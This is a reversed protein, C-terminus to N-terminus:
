LIGFNKDLGIAKIAILIDMCLKKMSTAKNLFYDAGLVATEERDKIHTSTTYIVVPIDKLLTDKKLEALCTKGDIRPMNLDLFIVDPLTEIKNRLLSLAEEGNYAIHCIANANIEHIAECFFDIDDIDDDVILYIQDRKMAKYFIGM